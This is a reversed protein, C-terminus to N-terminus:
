GRPLAIWNGAKFVDEVFEDPGAEQWQGDRWVKIRSLGTLPLEPDFTVGGSESAICKHISHNYLQKM